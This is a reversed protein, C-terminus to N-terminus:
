YSFYDSTAVVTLNDSSSSLILFAVPSPALMLWRLINNPSQQKQQSLLHRFDKRESQHVQFQLIVGGDTALRGAQEMKDNQCHYVIYGEELVASFM